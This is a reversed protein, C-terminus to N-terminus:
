FCSLRQDSNSTAQCEPLGVAQCDSAGACEEVCGHSGIGLQLDCIQGAPCDVDGQCSSACWYSGQDGTGDLFNYTECPSACESPDSVTKGPCAPGMGSSSGGSSSGSVGSSGGSGGGSSSSSSSSKGGSSGSSGGSVSGGGSSSGSGGGGGGPSASCAVWTGAGVLLVVVGFVKAMDVRMM